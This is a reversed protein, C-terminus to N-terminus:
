TGMYSSKMEARISTPSTHRIPTASALTYMTDLGTSESNHSIQRYIQIVKIDTQRLLQIVSELFLLVQYTTDVVLMVHYIIAPTIM